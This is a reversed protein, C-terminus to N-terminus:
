KGLAYLIFRVLYVAGTVAFGLILALNIGSFLTYHVLIASLATSVAFGVASGFLLCRMSRMVVLAMGFLWVLATLASIIVTPYLLYVYPRIGEGFVAAMVPEGLFLSLLLAALTVAAIMAFLKLLTRAIARRDDKAYFDGLVGVLPTFALMVFTQVLTAVTTVSSYYGLAEAGHVAELICKSVPMMSNIALGYIVMPLCIRALALTKRWTEPARLSLAEIRVTATLDYLLLSLLNTVAMAFIALALNDTLPFVTVFSLLMLAGRLLFSKGAIDLRWKRQATGHFVDAFNETLKLIMYGIICAFTYPEYGIVLAALACLLLAATVTVIRFALYESQSFKNETDSVQYNRVNFLAIIAFINTISMALSLTGAATYDDSFRVVLVTILWQCVLFFVAGVTNWLFNSKLSKKDTGVARKREFIM